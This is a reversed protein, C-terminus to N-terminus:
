SLVPIRQLRKRVRLVVANVETGTVFFVSRWNQGSLKCFWYVHLASCYIAALLTALANGEMGWLPILIVSLIVNLVGASLTIFGNVGPRGIGLFFSELSVTMGWILAAGLLILLPPVSLAFDKGCFIPVLPPALIAGIIVAVLMTAFLHRSANAVISGAGKNNRAAAEGGLLGTVATPITLATTYAQVGISYYGVAKLDLFYALLFTDLRKFMVSGVSKLYHQLGFQFTERYLKWSLECREERLRKWNSAAWGGLAIAQAGAAGYIAGTVGWRFVLLFLATLFFTAAGGGLMIWAYAKTRGKALELSSTYNYLMGVPLSVFAAWLLAPEIRGQFLAGTLHQNGIAFLGGTLLTFLAAVGLFSVLLTKENYLKKRLYYTAAAHLGLSGTVVLLNVGTTVIVQLGRGEAGITRAIILLTVLRLPSMMWNSLFVSAGKKGLSM